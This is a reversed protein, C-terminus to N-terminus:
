NIKFRIMRSILYLQYLNPKYKMNIVTALFMWGAIITSGSPLEVFRLFFSELVLIYKFNKFVAGFIIQIFNIPKKRNFHFCDINM